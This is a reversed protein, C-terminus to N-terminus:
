LIRTILLFLWHGMQLTDRERGLNGELGDDDHGFESGVVGEFVVEEGILIECVDEVASFM